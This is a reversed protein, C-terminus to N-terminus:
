PVSPRSGASVAAPRTLPAPFDFLYLDAGLAMCHDRRQGLRDLAMLYNDTQKERGPGVYVHALVLWARGPRILSSLVSSLSAVDTQHSFFTQFKVDDLAYAPAYYAFAPAAYSYVYVGDGTRYHAHLYRMIPKIEERPPWAIEQDPFDALWVGAGWLPRLVLLMGLLWAIPRGFRNPLRLLLDVGASILLLVLPVDFLLLRGQFPYKRFLSAALAFVTPLALMALAPRQARYLAFCGLGALAASLSSLSLGLPDNFARSFAAVYWRAAAASGPIPAFDRAWFALLYQEDVHQRLSMFYVLAFSIGWCGFAFLLPRYSKQDPREVTAGSTRAGAPMPLVMAIAVGGLVFLAPHSCWLTVAGALVLLLRRPRSARDEMWRLACWLLILTATVDAGYQKVEAAYYVVYASVSFLLLGFLAAPMRLTRRAIAYFLPLAALSTLLPVLRLAWDATGFLQTALKEALLFGLPAVQNLDLPSLLGAFTRDRINLAIFAEDEWLSRNTLFWAFRLVVGLGM